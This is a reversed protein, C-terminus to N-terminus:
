FRVKRMLREIADQQREEHPLYSSLVGIIKDGQEPPFYVSLGPMMRKLPTLLIVDLPGEEQVSFSKFMEFPYFKDAIKIGTQDIQYGLVRPQRAAFAGFIIAIILVIAASVKDRTILYILGSGAVTALGLLFYWGASKQHAVYESATWQVSDYSGQAPHASYDQDENKFSWNNNQPEQSDNQM